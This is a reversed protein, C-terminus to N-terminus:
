RTNEGGAVRKSGTSFSGLARMQVDPVERWAHGLVHQLLDKGDCTLGWEEEGRGKGNRRALSIRQSPVPGTCPTLIIGSLFM